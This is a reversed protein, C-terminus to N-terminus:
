PYNSKGGTFSNRDATSGRASVVDNRARALGLQKQAAGIKMVLPECTPQQQLEQKSGSLGGFDDSVIALRAICSAEPCAWSGPLISM